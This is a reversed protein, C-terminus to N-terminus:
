SILINLYEPVSVYIECDITFVTGLLLSLLQTENSGLGVMTRMRVGLFLGIESIESPSLKM